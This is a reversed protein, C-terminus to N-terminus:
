HEEPRKLTGVEVQNDDRTTTYGLRTVEERANDKGRKSREKKRIEM